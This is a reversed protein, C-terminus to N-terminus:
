FLKLSTNRLMKKNGAGKRLQLVIQRCKKSCNVLLYIHLKTIHRTRQLNKSCVPVAAVRKLVVTKSKCNLM